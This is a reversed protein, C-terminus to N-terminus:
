RGTVPAALSFLIAQYAAQRQQVSRAWGAPTSPDPSGVAAGRQADRLAFEQVRVGARYRVMAQACHCIEGRASAGEWEVTVCAGVPLSAPLLLGLGSSSVDVIRVAMPSVAGATRLTAPWDTAIRGESRRNLDQALVIGLQYAGGELRHCDAVVADMRAEPHVLDVRAGSKVHEPSHVQFVGNQVASLTAAIAQSTQDQLHLQIPIRFERCTSVL